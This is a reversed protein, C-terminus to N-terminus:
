RVVRLSAKDERLSPQSYVTLSIYSSCIHSSKSLLFRPVAVITILSHLLTGLADTYTMTHGPGKGVAVNEDKIESTEVGPWLLRKGFGARSIIHLSLRATDEALTNITRSENGSLGTWSKVMLEAQHISEEWVLHNNKESFSPAAIKRHERWHQGELTVINKGYIDITKYVEIPKPFDNRRNTIQTILEPSGTWLKCQSPAVTLFTDTGQEEYFAYLHNWSCMPSIVELWPHTWSEPLKQLLRRIPRNFIM